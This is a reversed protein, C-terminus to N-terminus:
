NLVVHWKLFSVKWPWFRCGRNTGKEKSGSQGRSYLSKFVVVLMCTHWASATVPIATNWRFCRNDSALQELKVTALILTTITCELRLWLKPSHSSSKWYASLWGLLPPFPFLPDCFREWRSQCSGSHILFEAVIMLSYNEVLLKPFQSM